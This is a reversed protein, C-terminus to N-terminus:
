RGKRRWWYLGGVSILMVGIAAVIWGAALGSSEIATAGVSFDYSGVVQHGDADAATWSVTYTGAALNLGSAVLQETNNADVRGNVGPVAQCQEGFLVFSSDEHLPSNFTLRIEAPSEALQTGAAPDSELLEVHALAPRPMALLTLLVLLGAWWFRKM